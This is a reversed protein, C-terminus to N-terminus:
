RRRFFTDITVYIDIITTFDVTIWIGFCSLFQEFFEAFSIKPNYDTIFPLTHFPYINITFNDSPSSDILHTEYFRDTCGKRCTELCHEHFKLYFRMLTTNSYDSKSFILKKGDIFGLQIKEDM